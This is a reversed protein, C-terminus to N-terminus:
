GGATGEGRIFERFKKLLRQFKKKLGRQSARGQVALPPILRRRRDLVDSAVECSSFVYKVKKGLVATAFPTSFDHKTLTFIVQAFGYKESRNGRTKLKELVRMVRPDVHYLMVIKEFVKKFFRCLIASERRVFCPMQVSCM